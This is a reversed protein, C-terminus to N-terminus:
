DQEEVECRDAAVLFDLKNVSFIIQVRRDVPSITRQPKRLRAIAILFTRNDFAYPSLLKKSVDRECTIQTSDRGRIWRIARIDFM